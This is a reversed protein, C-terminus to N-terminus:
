IQRTVSTQFQQSKALSSQYDQQAAQSSQASVQHVEGYSFGATGSISAGVERGTNSIKFFGGVSASVRRLPWSM